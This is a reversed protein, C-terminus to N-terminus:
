LNDRILKLAEDIKAKDLKGEVIFILKGTKDFLLVDSNDDALGWQNVLVKKFDKVYLTTPFKEQKSKLKAEIAMNPLWTAAMNIVAVTSFRNKDFDAAKVADVFENNRESEDPDVYMLLFVKDRMSDSQWDGGAVKGGNEGALTVKPPEKGVTLAAASAASATLSLMAYMMVVALRM